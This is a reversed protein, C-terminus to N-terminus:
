VPAIGFWKHLLKRCEEVDRSYSPFTDMSAREFDIWYLLGTKYGIIINGSKIDLPCVGKQFIEDSIKELDGQFRDKALRSFANIERKEREPDDIKDSEPLDIDLLKDTHKSLFHQITEGHIYDMILTRERPLIRHIQPVCSIGKLRKLVAAETYFNLGMWSYMRHKIGANPPYGSFKKRFCVRKNSLVIDLKYRLRPVMQERTNFLKVDLPHVAFKFGDQDIGALVRDETGMSAVSPIDALSLMDPGDTRLGTEADKLTRRVESRASVIKSLASYGPFNAFIKIM